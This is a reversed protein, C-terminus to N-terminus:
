ESFVRKSLKNVEKRLSEVSKKEENGQAADVVRLEWQLEENAEVAAKLRAEAASKTNIADALKEYAEALKGRLQECDNSLENHRYNFDAEASEVEQLQKELEACIERLAAFEKRDKVEENVIRKEEKSMQKSEERIQEIEGEMERKQQQMKILDEELVRIRAKLAESELTCEELRERAVSENDLLENYESALADVEEDTWNFSHRHYKCGTMKRILKEDDARPYKKQAESLMKQLKKTTLDDKYSGLFNSMDVLQDELVVSTEALDRSSVYSPPSKFRRSKPDVKKNYYICGNTQFFQNGAPFYVLSSQHKVPKYTEQLVEPVGRFPNETLYKMTQTAISPDISPSEHPKHPIITELFDQKIYQKEKPSPTPLKTKETENSSKSKMWRRQVGNQSSPKTEKKEKKTSSEKSIDESTIQSIIEKFAKKINNGTKASVEYFSTIGNEKCFAKAAKTEIIKNELDSKNGLLFSKSIDARSSLEEKWQKINELSKAQTCDYVFVAFTALSCAKRFSTRSISNGPSDILQLCTRKGDIKIKKEYQFLKKTENYESDFKGNVYYDIISTKGVKGDGIVLGYLTKSM